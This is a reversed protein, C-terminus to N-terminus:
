PRGDEPSSESEPGPRCSPEIGAMVREEWSQHLALAERWRGVLILGVREAPVGHQTM